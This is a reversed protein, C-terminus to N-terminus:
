EEESGGDGSDREAKKKSAGIERLSIGKHPKDGGRFFPFFVLPRVPLISNPDQDAM